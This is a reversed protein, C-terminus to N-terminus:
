VSNDLLLVEGWDVEAAEELWQRIVPSPHRRPSPGCM